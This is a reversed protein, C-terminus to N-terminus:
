VYIYIYIYIYHPHKRNAPPLWLVHQRNTRRFPVRATHLNQIHPIQITIINMLMIIIIITIM